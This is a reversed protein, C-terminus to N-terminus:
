AGGSALREKAYDVFDDLTSPWAAEADYKEFRSDITRVFELFMQWTDKSIGKGGKENLFEFWWQTYEEKWGEEGDMDDDDDEEEEDDEEERSNIHSLAGGQLGHSILIAWFGQAMDLALSRQGAPRSFDFTYNYVQQFYDQDAGLNERLRPLANRMSPITDCGLSKWGDVWGKKSWDGLRPSKLEYAVALLVVDEPDVGLDECFKITGDVTIDEGDPDKYQDFLQNLKSTSVGASGRGTQGSSLDIYYADMAADLRKYKELYRKADRPNAGTIGCFQHILGDMQKDSASKSKSPKSMTWSCFSLFIALLVIFILSLNTEIAPSLSNLQALLQLLSCYRIIGVGLSWQVSKTLRDIRM